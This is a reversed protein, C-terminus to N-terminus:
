ILTIIYRLGSQGDDEYDLNSEEVRADFERCLSKVNEVPDSDKALFTGLKVFESAEDSTQKLVLGETSQYGYVSELVPLLYLFM